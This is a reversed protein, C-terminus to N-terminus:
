GVMYDERAPAFIDMVECDSIAIGSHIANSPIVAAQGSKMEMTNGNVTLQFIGALVQSVQEHPHNHEPLESGKKIKWFSITMKETHIFRAKFGPIIEHSKQEKITIFNQM